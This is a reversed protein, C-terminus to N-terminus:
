LRDYHQIFKFSFTIGHLFIYRCDNFYPINIVILIKHPPLCSLSHTRIEVPLSVAEDFLEASKIM